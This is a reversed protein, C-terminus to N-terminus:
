TPRPEIEYIRTESEGGVTATVTFSLVGGEWVCSTHDPDIYEAVVPPATAEDTGNIAHSRNLEGNAITYVVLNEVDEIDKWALTLNFGPSESYTVNQSQLADKSVEKGAQQVQRVAVMHNSARTNITLVQNIAATIGGAILGVIAIAVLLEILTFGRQPKHVLRLRHHTM